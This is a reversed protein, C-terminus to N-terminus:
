ALLKKVVTGEVDTLRFDRGQFKYTLRTHDIGMLHLLTAQLDHVGVPDQTIHFGFDDTKGIQVGRKIGGGALWVTFAQPHHDRGLNKDDGPQAQMMPTRGFEGGWIVLTDDLMGRQKLDTLLAASARDTQGTLRDLGTVLDNGKGGHLDWGHHYVSIFRVGREALRRALLCNNAFSNQGPVAGYMELTAKSEKSIDMLEPASAQMKYAMEFSAIRTAIEPDGVVGLRHRNLDAIADLSDRQTNKDVGPPNSLFLIPDGTGRFPVGQHITPLFGSGWSAAGGSAGGGTSLVVYGPLDRASSGLGYTLWAGMAPRGFQESGTMLLIEAPAHNFATTHMSKVVAIEDVVKALHPLADSLEVGAKGHRGWKRPSGLLKADRKIFAYRQDGIVSAPLPQGQLETLKPKRDFLDLQSPAGAMFLYIVRKARAPFMPPRVALPNADTEGAAQGETLLSALALTGVGAVCDRFLQRRTVFRLRERTREDDHNM